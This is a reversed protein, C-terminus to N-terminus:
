RAGRDAKKQGRSVVLRRGEGEDRVTLVRCILLLSEALAPHADQASAETRPAPDTLHPLAVGQPLCSLGPTHGWGQQRPSGPARPM